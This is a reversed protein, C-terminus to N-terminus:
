QQLDLYLSFSQFEEGASKIDMFLMNIVNGNKLGVQLCCVFPFEMKFCGHHDGSLLSCNTIESTEIMFSGNDAFLSIFMSVRQTLIQLM